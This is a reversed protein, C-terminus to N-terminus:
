CFLLRRKQKGFVKQVVQGTSEVEGVEIIQWSGFKDLLEKEKSMSIQPHLNLYYHLSTTAAKMAGIIVLNPLNM